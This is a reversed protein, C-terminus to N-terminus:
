IGGVEGLFFVDLKETSAEVHVEPLWGHFPYIPYKISFAIFLCFWILFGIFISDFFLDYWGEYSFINLHFIVVLLAIILMVSGAVSYIILNYMAFVFRNTFAFIVMTFLLPLLLAEFLVMFAVFDEVCGLFFVIVGIYIILFLTGMFVNSFFCFKKAM